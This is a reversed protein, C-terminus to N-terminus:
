NGRAKEGFDAEFFGRKEGRKSPKEIPNWEGEVVEVSFM